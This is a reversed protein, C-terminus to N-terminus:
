IFEFAAPSPLIEFVRDLQTLELIIGVHTPMSCLSFRKNRQRALNLAAVLVMLGASDLSEVREMDVLIATAESQMAHQIQVILESGHVANVHGQACVLAGQSRYLLSQM